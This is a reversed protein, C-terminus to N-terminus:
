KEETMTGEIRFTRPAEPEPEAVPQVLGLKAKREALQKDLESQGLVRAMQEDLSEAHMESATTAKDLRARISNAVESMDSDGLGALNDLGRVIENTKEKSKALELLAMLEEREAKMTALRAELKVKTNLLNKFERDQQEFQSQYAEVLRKATNLRAQTAAAASENGEILFADIARDFEAAKEEQEALRRQVGKVEAGVAATADELQRLNDEVERIYQDIVAPSNSKLAEDVM